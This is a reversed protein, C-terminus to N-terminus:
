SAAVKELIEEQVQASSTSYITLRALSNYFYYLPVVPAASLYIVYGEALASNEVAQESESFLYCLYLKKFYVLFITIVDNAAKHQPLGNKENYFEGILRCLNNSYGLLNAM